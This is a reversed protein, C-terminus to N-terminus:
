CLPPHCGQLNTSLICLPIKGTHKHLNLPSKYETTDHQTGGTDEACDPKTMPSLSISTFPTLKSFMVMLLATFTSVPLLLSFITTLRTPLIGPM